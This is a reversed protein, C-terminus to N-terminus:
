KIVKAASDVTNLLQQRLRKQYDEYIDSYREEYKTDDQAIDEYAKRALGQQQAVASGGVSIGMGSLRARRSSLQEELINKKNRRNIEQSNKLSILQKNLMNKNDSLQTLQKGVFATPILPAAMGGTKITKKVADGVSSSAISSLGGM